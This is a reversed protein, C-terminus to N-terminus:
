SQRENSAPVHFLGCNIASILIRPRYQWEVEKLRGDYQAEIDPKAEPEAAKLLPEYYDRVRTHEESLRLQADRAWSHDYAALKTELHQELFLVARPLTIRDPTVYVRAPLRPTLKRSDIWDQFQERLEGTQLQIGISHIESRKMDCSLEVLYNVALWTDYPITSTDRQRPDAPPQAEFLRVFRGKGKVAAFIQELRRSGYTLEDRPTRATFSTPVFGFYRGLISDGTPQGPAAPQGAAPQAPPAALAGAGAATAPAAGAPASGHATTAAAPSPAFGPSPVAATPSPAAGPASGQAPSPGGAVGPATTGAFGPSPAAATPSPTAGPVSGQAPSPGGAVGPATTGAFGPPAATSIGPAPGGPQAQPHLEGYREPDFIFTCTMTEPEVGTREVFSWYYPRHNLDKDASPSLKVTVYAPHKELLECSEADLYRLVYSRIQESTMTM